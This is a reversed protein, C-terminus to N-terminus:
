FECELIHKGDSRYHFGYEYTDSCNFNMRHVLVFALFGLVLLSTTPVKSKILVSKLSVSTYETVVSEM